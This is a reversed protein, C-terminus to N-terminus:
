VRIGFVLGKWVKPSAVIMLVKFGDLKMRLKKRLDDIKLGKSGGLKM